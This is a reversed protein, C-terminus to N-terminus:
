VWSSVGSLRAEMLRETPRLNQCSLVSLLLPAPLLRQEAGNAKTEAWAAAFRIVGAKEVWAPGGTGGDHRLGRGYDNAMRGDLIAEKIEDKIEGVIRCPPIGYTEM